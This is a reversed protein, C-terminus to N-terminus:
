PSLRQKERLILHWEQLNLKLASLWADLEPDLRPDVGRLSELLPRAGSQGLRALGELASRRVALDSDSKYLSTLL